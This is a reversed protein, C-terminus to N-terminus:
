EFELEYIVGPDRAMADWATQGFTAVFATEDLEQGFITVSELTENQAYTSHTTPQGPTNNDAESVLDGSFELMLDGHYTAKAM